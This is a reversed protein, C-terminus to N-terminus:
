PRAAFAGLHARHIAIQDHPLDEFVQFRGNAFFIRHDLVVRQWRDAGVARLKLLHKLIQDVIGDFEVSLFRRFDFHSRFSVLHLPLKEHAIVSDADRLFMGVANKDDELPQMRTFFIRSISNAKGYAFLDHFPVSSSDPRLGANMPPRGEMEGHWRGVFLFVGSAATSFGFVQVRFIQVRFIFFRFMLGASTKNTSSLGASRSRARSRSIALSCGRWTLATVSPSSATANRRRSPRNVEACRGSRMMKSRFRGRLFPHCTSSSTFASGLSREVGTTIKLVES